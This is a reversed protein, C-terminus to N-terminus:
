CKKNFIRGERKGSELFRGYGEKGERRERGWSSKKRGVERERV